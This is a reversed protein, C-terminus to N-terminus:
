RLLKVTTAIARLFRLTDLSCCYCATAATGPDLPRGNGDCYGDPRCPGSSMFLHRTLVAEECRAQRGEQRSQRRPGQRSPGFFGALRGVAQWGARALLRGQWRGTVALTVLRLRPASTVCRRTPLPLRQASGRPLAGVRLGTSSQWEDSRGGGGGGSGGTTTSFSRVRRLSDAPRKRARALFGM